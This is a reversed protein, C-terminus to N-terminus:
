FIDRIHPEIYRFVHQDYNCIASEVLEDIKPESRRVFIGRNM